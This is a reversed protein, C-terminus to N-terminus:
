VWGEGSRGRRDGLDPWLESLRKEFGSIRRVEEEDRGGEVGNGEGGRDELAHEVIPRYVEREREEDKGVVGAM